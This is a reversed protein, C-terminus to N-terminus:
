KRDSTFIYRGMVAILRMRIFAPSYGEYYLKFLLASLAPVRNVYHLLFQAENMM